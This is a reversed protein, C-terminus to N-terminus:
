WWPLFAKASLYFCVLSVAVYTIAWISRRVKEKRQMQEYIAIIHKRKSYWAFYNIIMMIIGVILGWFGGDIGKNALNVGLFHLSIICITSINFALIFIIHSFALISPSKISGSKTYFWYLFYFLNKIM